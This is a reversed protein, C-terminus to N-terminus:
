SWKVIVLTFHDKNYKLYYFVLSPSICHAFFVVIRIFYTCQLKESM